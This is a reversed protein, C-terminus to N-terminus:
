REQTQLRVGWLVPCGAFQPVQIGAGLILKHLPSVVILFILIAVIRLFEWSDGILFLHSSCHGLIAANKVM